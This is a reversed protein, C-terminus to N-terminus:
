PAAPPLPSPPPPEAPGGRAGPGVAGALEAELAAARRRARLLEVSGAVAVVLAGLLLAAFILVPLPVEPLTFGLFVLRVPQDNQVAFVVVALAVLLLVILRIM